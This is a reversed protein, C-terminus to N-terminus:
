VILLTIIYVKSAQLGTIGSIVVNGNVDVWSVYVPGTAPIYTTKEYAQTVIVGFARTKLGTPFQIQDMVPYTSSTRVTIQRVNSSINETFTVNKNLTQYVADMFSNIPDIIANIWAPAGKVDERLIKKISPLKM